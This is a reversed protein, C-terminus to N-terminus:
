KELVKDWKERCRKCLIDPDFKNVGKINIEEILRVRCSHCCKAIIKKATNLAKATHRFSKLMKNQDETDLKNFSEDEVQKKDIKIKKM